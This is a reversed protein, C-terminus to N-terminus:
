GRSADDGGHKVLVHCTVGRAVRRAPKGWFETDDGVVHRRTKCCKCLLNNSRIRARRIGLILAPIRAAIMSTRITRPKRANHNVLALHRVLVRIYMRRLIRNIPDIEAMGKLM